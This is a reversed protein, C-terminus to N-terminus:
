GEAEIEIQNESVLLYQNSQGVQVPSLVSQELQLQQNRVCQIDSVAKMGLRNFTTSKSERRAVANREVQDITWQLYPQSKNEPCGFELILM